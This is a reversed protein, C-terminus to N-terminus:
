PLSDAIADRADGLSQALPVLYAVDFESRDDNVSLNGDGLQALARHLDDDIASTLEPHSPRLARGLPALSRELQELSVKIEAASADRDAMILALRDHARMLEREASRDAARSGVPTSLTLVILAAVVIV